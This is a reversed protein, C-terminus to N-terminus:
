GLSGLAVGIVFVVARRLGRYARHSPTTAFFAMYLATAVTAGSALAFGAILLAASAPPLVSLIGGLTPGGSGQDTGAPASLLIDGLTDLATGGFRSIELLSWVLVAAAAAFPVPGAARLREALSLEGYAEDTLGRLNDYWGLRSARLKAFARAPATAELLMSAIHGRGPEHLAALREIFPDAKLMTGLFAVTQAEESRCLVRIIEPPPADAWLVLLNLITRVGFRRLEGAKEEGFYNLLLAQGVWDVIQELPLATQSLLAAPNAMALNDVTRIGLRALESEAEATLGSVLGLPLNHSPLGSAPLLRQEEDPEEGAAYDWAM